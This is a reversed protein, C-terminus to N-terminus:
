LCHKKGLDRPTMQLLNKTQEKGDILESSQGLKPCRSTVLLAAHLQLIKQKKKKPKKTAM